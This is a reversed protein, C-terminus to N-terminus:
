APRVCPPLFKDEEPLQRYDSTHYKFVMHIVSSAVFVIVASLLMHLLLATLSVM